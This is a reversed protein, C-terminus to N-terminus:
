RMEGIIRMTEAVETISADPIKHLASRVVGPGSVGVNILEVEDGAQFARVEEKPVFKKEKKGRVDKETQAIASRLMSKAAALNQEAANKRTKKQLDDLELFVTEATM